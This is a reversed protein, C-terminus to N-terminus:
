LYSLLESRFLEDQLTLRSLMNRINENNSSKGVLNRQDEKM